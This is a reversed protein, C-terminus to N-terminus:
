GARRPQVERLERHTPATRPKPQSVSRRGSIATKGSTAAPPRSEVARGGSQRATGLQDGAGPELDHLLGVLGELLDRVPPVDSDVGEPALDLHPSLGGPLIALPAM